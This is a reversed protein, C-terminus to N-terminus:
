NDGMIIKLLESGYISEKPLTAEAKHIEEKSLKFVEDIIFAHARTIKEMTKFNVGDLDVDATTHYFKGTQIYGISVANLDNYPPHFAAEDAAVDQYIFDGITFSYNISAKVLINILNKNLNTVLAMLPSNINTKSIYVGEDMLQTMGLHEPRLVLLLNNKMLDYNKAIFPITGGVGPVEHDGQFLFILGYKRKEIPLNQYYKALSLNLAVSAGNDHIGYFYSDVHTPLVIYQEVQGPLIAYTNATIRKEVPDVVGQVVLKMNVPSNESVRDLLKRLYLGDSQGISTWPLALGIDDAGGPAGVRGAVQKAFPVDWWVVVGAPKGWKGTAIRAYATRASNLIAAPQTRGRLLIIKGELNRGHLESSTGDGVYVLEGKVGADPTIASVFATLANKFQYTKDKKFGPAGTIELDIKTPRWQPYQCNMENYHVDKLGISKLEDRIWQHAKLEYKTGQIRGWLINGDEKSEIAFEKLKMAYSEIENTLITNRPDTKEDLTQPIMPLDIQYQYKTRLVNLKKDYADPKLFSSNELIKILAEPTSAMAQKNEPPQTAMANNQLLLLMSCFVICKNLKM